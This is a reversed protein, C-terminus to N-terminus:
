RAWSWCGCCSRGAPRAAARRDRRPLHHRRRGGRLGGQAAARRRLLGRARPRVAGVRHPDRRHRLLQGPHLPRRRRRSRAHIARAVLEKGTGTEGLITVAADAPAVRELLEFLQRMARDRCIMGEFSEGAPPGAPEARSWSSSSTGWSCRSASPSSPGSWGRAASFRGTPPASTSSRGAATARSSASTARPSSRTTSWWTAPRTRAWRSGPPWSRSPRSRGRERVLRLRAPPASEAAPMGPPGPHQGVGPDGRGGPRSAARFLARWAGLALEAGDSCGGRGGGRGGVRTGRGSRDLLHYADGRREM